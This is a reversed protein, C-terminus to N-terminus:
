FAQGLSFHFAFQNVRQRTAVGRQFLLDEYTGQFGQFRPSNPSFGIDIRIPGVPTRYRFGLGVTHVMYNFDTIDRQKVRFSVENLKSYVNGADHFLVGSLNDGVLPFRLELSNILVAKGGVPFGTVLDRPGAQNESFGRHSNAGGSFFREPLPVDRVPNDSFGYQWGFTVTRAFVMDRGVKYYSSNRGLLRAFDSQSALARTSVAADVTNYWGRKADLPDDRRDRIFTLSAIGLRVPQSLLPILQPEIKLTDADVAVRRYTLRYQITNARSLRQGLQASAERRRANFTRVNRSDDYLATLILNLRDSDRFQPALYSLVARNQLNSLRTQVSATHGVGFMNGRSLGLLVRPSFGTGGAPSDFSTIGGGIRAIQAGAGFTFSYKRAEEVQYLLYKNQEVGEPNQIAMDVRAFIGLDYLRRQTDLMRGQSIPDGPSMRLRSAVLQADTAELGGVLIKRIFQQRGEQITFKVAVRRKAADVEVASDVTAGLFGNNYFETLLADRDAAVGEESYPQDPQSQLLSRLYEAREDTVGELDVKGVLTQQGEEVTVFVAQELGKGQRADEVRSSVTVELFGNSRYLDQIAERDAALMRESYRGHRYRLWTAPTTQMRELLTKQNFYRNGTIQLSTLKYREGRAIQYDITRRGNQDAIGYSVEADFYGDAQFYQEISRAGELLLARDVSQEQYIPALQRLKTRGLKAGTTRVAVPTGAEIRVVPQAFNTQSSYRVGDLTVAAMLFNKKIYTRRIRDIGNQLRSQTMPKWGWPYNAFLGFVYPWRSARILAAPTQQLTGQFEPRTLRARPGADVKFFVNVTQTEPDRQVEQEIKSQYLGNLRLTNALGEAAQNVQGSELLSGLDLKTSNNVQGATPPDPVGKVAVRGIFWNLTTRIVVDVGDGNRTGDVRIGDFRNTKYLETISQRVGLRTLPEGEHIALLTRLEAEPVPQSAPDFRISRVPLGALSDTVFSPPEQARASWVLIGVLLVSSRPM